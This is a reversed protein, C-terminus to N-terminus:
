GVSSLDRTSSVLKSFLRDTIMSVRFSCFSLSTFSTSSKTDRRIASSHSSIHSLSCDMPITVYLPHSWRSSHPNTNHTKNIAPYCVTLHKQQQAFDGRTLFVLLLTKFSSARLLCPHIHLLERERNHIHLCKNCIPWSVLRVM